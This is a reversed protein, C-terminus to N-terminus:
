AIIHGSKRYTGFMKAYDRKMVNLVKTINQTKLGTRERILIYLAKKNFSEINERIRFLELVTDAVVIDRKNTFINNINSDYWDVWLNTFDRLSEQHDSLAVEASINRREDLIDTSMRSKMKAYNANNQIILYNKAIISFYSFAKGKGEQFKGIKQVLFAVVEAKVDEYPVDFYSFKFTHYINEVLKNFPYNIHERFVRNRKSWSPETNYAIIAQDTMYTFYQKKSPKRGRRVRPGNEDLYELEAKLWIYFKDVPSEGEPYTIVKEKEETM